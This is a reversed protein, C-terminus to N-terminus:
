ATRVMMLVHCPAGPVLNVKQSYDVLISKELSAKFFICARYIMGKGNSQRSMFKLSAVPVNIRPKFVLDFMFDSGNTSQTAACTKNDFLSIHM